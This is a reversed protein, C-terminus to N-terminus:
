AKRRERKEQREYAIDMHKTCSLITGLKGRMICSVRNKCGKFFCKPEVKVPHESM